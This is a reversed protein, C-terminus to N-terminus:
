GVVEGTEADRISNKYARYYKRGNNQSETCDCIFKKHPERLTRPFQLFSDLKHSYAKLKGRYYRIEIEVDMEVAGGFSDMTMKDLMEPTREFNSM